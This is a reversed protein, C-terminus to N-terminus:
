ADFDDDYEDCFRFQPVPPPSRLDVGLVLLEALRWWPGRGFDEPHDPRRLEPESDSLAGHSHKAGLRM